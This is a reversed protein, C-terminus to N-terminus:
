CTNLHPCPNIIFLNVVFSTFFARCAENVIQMFTPLQFLTDMLERAEIDIPINADSILLLM